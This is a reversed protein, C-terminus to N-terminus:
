SLSEQKGEEAPKTAAALREQQAKMVSHRFDSNRRVKQLAKEAARQQSERKNFGDGQGANLGEIWAASRFHATNDNNHREFVLRFEVILKNKQAWELLKSKFNADKKSLAELNLHRGLIREDFFKLCAEYGRDLYLAGMIAEFTNGPINNRHVAVHPEQRILRALGTQDALQNLTSRQVIRSRLRTLFGEPKNPFRDYLIDSVVLEIVADGLFELRENNLPTGKDDHQALSRHSLATQYYHIRRPSVGLLERLAYYLEKDKHFLLRIHDFLSINM